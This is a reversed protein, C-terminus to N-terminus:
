ENAIEIEQHRINDHPSRHLIPQADGDGMLNTVEVNALIGAIRVAFLAPKLGAGVISGKQTGKREKRGIKKENPGSM